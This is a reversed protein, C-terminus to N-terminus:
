CSWRQRRLQPFQVSTETDYSRHINQNESDIGSKEKRKMTVKCFHGLSAGTVLLPPLIQRRKRPWSSVGKRLSLTRPRYGFLTLVDHCDSGARAVPVGCWCVYKTGGVKWRGSAIEQSYTSHTCYRRRTHWCFTDGPTCEHSRECNHLDSLKNEYMKM